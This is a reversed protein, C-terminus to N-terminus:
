KLGRLTMGGRVRDEDGLLDHRKKPRGRPPDGEVWPRRHPMQVIVTEDPEFARLTGKKKRGHPRIVKVPTPLAFDFAELPHGLDFHMLKERVLDPTLYVYRIGSKPTFEITQTDTHVWRATPFAKRIANSIMCYRSNKPQSQDILEQSVFIRKAGQAGQTVM